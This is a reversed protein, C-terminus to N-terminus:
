RGAAVAARARSRFAELRVDHGESTRRLADVTAQGKPIHAFPAFSYWRMANEHTM